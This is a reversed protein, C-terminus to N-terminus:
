TIKGGSKKYTKRSYALSKKELIYEKCLSIENTKEKKILKSDKYYKSKSKKSSNILEVSDM